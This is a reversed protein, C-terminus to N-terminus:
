FLPPISPSKLSALYQPPQLNFGLAYLPFHISPWGAPCHGLPLSHPALLHGRCVRLRLSVVDAPTADLFVPPRTDQVSIIQTATATNGSCDTATWTRTITYTNPCAGDTRSDSATVTAPTDCNDTATLTVAAPIADCEVTQLVAHSLCACYLNRFLYSLSDTQLYLLCQINFANLYSSEQTTM